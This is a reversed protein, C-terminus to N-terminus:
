KNAYKYRHKLELMIYQIQHKPLYYYKYIAYM